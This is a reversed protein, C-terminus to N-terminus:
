SVPNSIYKQLLILLKGKVEEDNQKKLEKYRELFDMTESKATEILSQSLEDFNIEESERRIFYAREQSHIHATKEWFCAEVKRRVQDERRNLIDSFTNYPNIVNLLYETIGVSESAVEGFLSKKLYKLWAVSIKKRSEVQLNPLERFKPRINNRYSAVLLFLDGHHEKMFSSFGKHWVEELKPFNFVVFPNKLYNDLLKEYKM